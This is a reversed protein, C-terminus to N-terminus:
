WGATSSKHAGRILLDRLMNWRKECSDATHKGKLKAEAEKWRCGSLRTLVHTMLIKDEEKSWSPHDFSADSLTPSLLLPTTTIVDPHSTSHHPDQPPTPPRWKNNSKMIRIEGKQQQVPYFSVDSQQAKLLVYEILDKVSPQRPKLRRKTPMLLGDEMDSIDDISEDESDILKGNNDYPRHISHGKTTQRTILPSGTKKFRIISNRVVSPSVGALRAIQSCKAGAQHAGIIFWRRQELEKASKM